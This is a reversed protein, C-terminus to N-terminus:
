EPFICFGEHRAEWARLATYMATKELYAREFALRLDKQLTEIDMETLNGLKSRLGLLLIGVLDHGVVVQWPDAEPLAQMGQLLDAVKLDHRNNFDLVKQIMAAIDVTWTGRDCFKHYDVYHFKKGQQKKFVLDLGRRRVSWRLRGLPLANALLAERISQKEEFADRRERSGHEGLVMELAPSHILMTELDHLDTWIVDPDEIMTGDLREFDADLVAVFGVKSKSQADRLTEWVKAKGGMSYIRCRQRDIRNEWFHQDSGGEVLLSVTNRNANFFEADTRPPPPPVGWPNQKEAAANM